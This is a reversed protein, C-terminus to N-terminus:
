LSSNTENDGEASRGREGGKEGFRRWDGVGGCYGASKDGPVDAPAELLESVAEWRDKRAGNRASPPAARVFTLIALRHPVLVRRM